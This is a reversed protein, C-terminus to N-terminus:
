PQGENSDAATRQRAHPANKCDARVRRPSVVDNVVGGGQNPINRKGIWRQHPSRAPYRRVPSDGQQNGGILWGIMTSGIEDFTGRILRHPRKDPLKLSL